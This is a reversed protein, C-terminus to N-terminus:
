DLSDSRTVSKIRAPLSSDVAAIQEAEWPRGAPYGRSLRVVAQKHEAEDTPEEFAAEM